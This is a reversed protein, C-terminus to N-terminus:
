LPTTLPTTLTVATVTTAVHRAHPRPSPTPVHFTRISPRTSVSLAIIDASHFIFQSDSCTEEGKVKGGREEGEKKTKYGGKEEKQKRKSKKDKRTGHQM